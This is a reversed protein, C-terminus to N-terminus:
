RPMTLYPERILLIKMVSAVYSVECSQKNPQLPPMWRLVVLMLVLAVTELVRLSGRAGIALPISSSPRIRRPVAASRCTPRRPRETAADHVAM